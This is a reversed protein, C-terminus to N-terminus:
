TALSKCRRLIEHEVMQAPLIVVSKRAEIPLSSRFFELVYAFNEHPQTYVGAKNDFNLHAHTPVEAVWDTERDVIWGLMFEGLYVRRRSYLVVCRAEDILKVSSRTVERTRILTEQMRIPADFEIRWGDIRDILHGSFPVDHFKGSVRLSM